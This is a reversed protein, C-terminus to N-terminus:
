AMRDLNARENEKKRRKIEKRLDKIVRSLLKINEKMKKKREIEIQLLEQLFTIVEEEKM